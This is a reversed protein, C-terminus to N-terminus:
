WTNRSYSTGPWQPYGGETWNDATEFGDNAVLNSGGGVEILSVDDFAVWGSSMYNLLRIRIQTANSPVTIPGGKQEWTTSIEASGGSAANYPGLYVDTADYFLAQVRWGMVTTDSDLKGRLWAHLDYQAGPTVAILDSDLFGYAHNSITYAYSGTFPSGTGWTGRWFSTAPFKNHSMENWGTAGDEFSPNPALNTLEGVKTLSVEDYAVWGSGYANYLRISLKTANVPTKIDGGRYQWSEELGDSAATESSIFTDNDDYYAAVIKYPKDLSTDPDLKGRVFASLYYEIGPTVAIMDSYLYGWAHNSIAYGYSGTHPAASATTARRFGTGPYYANTIESWSDNTEFGHSFVVIEELDLTTELTSVDNVTNGSEEQFTYLTQLGNTVHTAAFATMDMNLAILPIIIVLGLTFLRPRLKKLSSVFANIQSKM